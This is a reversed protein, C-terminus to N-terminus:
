HVIPLATVPTFAVPLSANLRDGHGGLLRDISYRDCLDQNTFGDIEVLM